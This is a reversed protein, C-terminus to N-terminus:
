KAEKQEVYLSVNKLNLLSEEFAISRLEAMNIVISSDYIFEPLGLIQSQLDQTEM